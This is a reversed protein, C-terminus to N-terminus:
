ASSELGSVICLPSRFYSIQRIDVTGYHLQLLRVLVQVELDPM